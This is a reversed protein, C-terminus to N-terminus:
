PSRTPAVRGSPPVCGADWSTPSLVGDRRVLPETLREASTLYGYAFRGKACAHGIGVGHDRARLALDRRHPYTRSGGLARDPGVRDARAYRRRGIRPSADDDSPVVPRLVQEAEGKM